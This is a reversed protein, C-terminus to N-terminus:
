TALDPTELPWGTLFNGGMSLVWSWVEAIMLPLERVCCTLAFMALWPCGDREWYRGLVRHVELRTPQTLQCRWLGIRWWRCIQSNQITTTQVWKAVTTAGEWWLFLLQTHCSCWPCTMQHTGGKSYRGLTRFLSCVETCWNGEFNILARAWCVPRWLRGWCVLYGVVQAPGDVLLDGTHWTLADGHPPARNGLLM